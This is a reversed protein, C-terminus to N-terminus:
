ITTILINIVEEILLINCMVNKSSLYNKFNNPPIVHGDTERTILLFNKKM